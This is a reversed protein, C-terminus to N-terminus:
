SVKPPQWINSVVAVAHFDGNYIPSLQYHFTNPPSVLITLHTVFVGSPHTTACDNTKFPLNDHDHHGTDPHSQTGSYHEKMFDTFSKDPEQGQHEFFHHLLVPLRLLQHLETNSGLFVFLFSIAVLKKM